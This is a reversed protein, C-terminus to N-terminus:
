NDGTGGGGRQKFNPKITRPVDFRRFNAKQAGYWRRRYARFSMPPRGLLWCKFLYREYSEHSVQNVFLRQERHLNMIRGGARYFILARAQWLREKM